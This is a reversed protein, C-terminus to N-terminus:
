IEVWDCCGRSSLKRFQEILAANAGSFYTSDALQASEYSFGAFDLPMTSLTRDLAVRLTASATAGSAPRPLGAVAMAASISALFERRNM